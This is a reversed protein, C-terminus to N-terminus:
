MFCLIVIMACNLISTFEKDTITLGRVQLIGRYLSPPVTEIGFCSKGPKANEMNAIQVSAAANKDRNCDSVEGTEASLYAANDEPKRNLSGSKLWV